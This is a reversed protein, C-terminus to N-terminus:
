VSGLAERQFNETWHHAGVHVNYINDKGSRGQHIYISICPKGLYFSFILKIYALSKVSAMAAAVSTPKLHGKVESAYSMHTGPSLMSPQMSSTNKAKVYKLWKQHCCNCFFTRRPSQTWPSRRHRGGNRSQYPHSNSKSQFTCPSSHTHTVETDEVMVERRTHSSKKVLLMTASAQLLHFLKIYVDM